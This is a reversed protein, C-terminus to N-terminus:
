FGGGGATVGFAIFAAYLAAFLVIALLIVGGAGISIWSLLRTQEPNISDDATTLGIVGFILIMLPLCYTLCGLTGCNLVMVGAATVTVIALLDNNNGRYIKASAGSSSTPQPVPIVDPEDEVYQNFPNPINEM